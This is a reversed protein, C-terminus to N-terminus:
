NVLGHLTLQLGAHKAFPRFDTDRAHLRINHDICFQAILTDALKPRIKQRLLDARTLGARTWFGFRVELLPIRLLSQRAAFSRAPDSLLEALVIPCMVLSRQQLHVEILEVDNGPQGALFPIWSSSDACFL